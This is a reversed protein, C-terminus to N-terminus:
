LLPKDGSFTIPTAGEIPGVTAKDSVYLKASHEFRLKGQVTAGPGIIVVPPPREAQVTDPPLNHVRINGQIRTHGNLTIDGDVTAIDQNVVADNIIITGNISSVAKAEAGDNLTLNGNVSTVEGSLRAGKDLTIGGNVTKASTGSAGAGVWIDGNISDASGFSAKDDISIAGNVTAANGNPEGAVLHVSGNVRQTGNGNGDHSCAALGLLVLMLPAILQPQHM